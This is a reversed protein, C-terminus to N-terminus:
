PCFKVYYHIIACKKAFFPALRTSMESLTNYSWMQTSWSNLSQLFWRFESVKAGKSNSTWKNHSFTYTILLYPIKPTRFSASFKMSIHAINITLLHYELFFNPTSIMNNADIPIQFIFHLSTYKIHANVYTNDMQPDDRPFMYCSPLTYSRSMALLPAKITLFGSGVRFMSWSTTSLLPIPIAYDHKAFIKSHSNVQVEAQVRVGVQVNCKSTPANYWQIEIIAYHM